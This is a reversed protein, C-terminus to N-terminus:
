KKSVEEGKKASKAKKIALIGCVAGLAVIPLFHLAVFWGKEYINEVIKENQVTAVDECVLALVESEFTGFANTVSFKIKVEGNEIFQVRKVEQNVWAIEGECEVESLQDFGTNYWYLSLPVDTKDLSYIIKEARIQVNMLDKASIVAETEGAGITVSFDKDQATYCLHFAKGLSLEDNSFYGDLIKTEDVFVACYFGAELSNMYYPICQIKVQKEGNFVNTDAVSVAKAQAGSKWASIEVAENSLSFLIGGDMYENIQKGGKANFLFALNEGNEINATFSLEGVTKNALAAVSVVEGNASAKNLIDVSQGVPFLQSLNYSDYKVGVTPTEVEGAKLMQIKNMWIQSCNRLGVMETETDLTNGHYLVYLTSIMGEEDTLSQIDEQEVIFKNHYGQENNEVTVTAAYGIPNGNEDVFKQTKGGYLYLTHNGNANKDTLLIDMMFQQYGDPNLKGVNLAFVVNKLLLTEVGNEDTICEAEPFIEKKLEVLAPNDVYAYFGGYNFADIYTDAYGKAQTWTVNEDTLNNPNEGVIAEGASLVSNQAFVIKVYDVMVTSLWSTADSEVRLVVSQLKGMVNCVSAPDIQFIRVFNAGYQEPTLTPHEFDGGYGYEVASGLPNEFNTDDASYIKLAVYTADTSFGGYGSDPWRNFMLRIEIRQADNDGGYIPDSYGSAILKVSPNAKSVQTQIIYNDKGANLFNATDKYATPVPKVDFSLQNADLMVYDNQAASVTKNTNWGFGFLGLVLFLLASLALVLISKKYAVRKM